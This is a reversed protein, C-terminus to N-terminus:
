AIQQLIAPDIPKTIRATFGAESCRTDHPEGSFGSVAFIRAESLLPSQRLERCVEYGNRGPMGIDLFILRPLFERAAELAEGGDAAAHVDYGMWRLLIVLAERSDTEDDVVLACRNNLSVDTSDRTM